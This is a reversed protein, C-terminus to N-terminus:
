RVPPGCTERWGLRLIERTTTRCRPQVCRFAQGSRSVRPDRRRLCGCPFARRSAYGPDLEHTEIRRSDTSEERPPNNMSSGLRPRLVPGHSTGPARATTALRTVDLSVTTGHPSGSRASRLTAMATAAETVRRPRRAAPTSIFATARRDPGRWSVRTGRPRGQTIEM